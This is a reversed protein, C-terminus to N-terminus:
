VLSFEPHLSAKKRRARKERSTTDTARDQRPPGLALLFENGRYAKGRIERTSREGGHMGFTCVVRICVHVLVKPVNRSSHRAATTEKEIEQEGREVIRGSVREIQKGKDQKM